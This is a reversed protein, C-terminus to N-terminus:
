YQSDFMTLVQPPIVIGLFRATHRNLALRIREPHILSGAWSPYPPGNVLGKALSAAQKGMDDYNLYTSMLAGSQVLGPSFGLIPIHAKLTTKLFFSLSDKTLVTSDPLLWLADIKSVLARLTDPVDNASGVERSLLELGLRKAQRRAKEVRQSMQSLDYIVGVRKVRPLVLRLSSIQQSFPINLTIGTMPSTTLNYKDPNLVMCFIVPVDLIELKSVLAAKLGIALVLRVDSARIRRALRRGRSLDGQLDYEKISGLSQPISEEFAKIAQEYAMIDASKLIAMEQAQTVVPVSLLFVTM